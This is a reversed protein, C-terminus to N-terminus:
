AQISPRACSLCHFTSMLNPRHFTLLTYLDPDSVVNALSNTLYLNPKTPICSTLHFLPPVTLAPFQLKKKKKHFLFHFDDTPILIKKTCWLISDATLLTSNM